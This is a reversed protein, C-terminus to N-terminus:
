ARLLDIIDIRLFHLAHQAFRVDCGLDRLRDVAHGREAIHFVAVHHRWYLTLFCDFAVVVVTARRFHAFAASAESRRLRRPTSCLSSQLQVLSMPAQGSQPATRIDRLLMGPASRLLSLLLPRMRLR